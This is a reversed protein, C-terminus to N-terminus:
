CTLYNVYPVCIMCWLISIVDYGLVEGRLNVAGTRSPTRTLPTTTVVPSLPSTLTRSPSAPTPNVPLDFADMLNRAEESSARPRLQNAHRKWISGEVLVDYLTQGHRRLIRGPSWKSQGARFDRAFVLDNPEFKRPKAGHRRNFQEEMTIDPRAEPAHSPKLLDLTSRLRRGIFNETPSRGDPSATCPTNRYTFLFIHLADVTPGNNKMKGISRKSTDVFREAQRITPPIPAVPHARNRQKIIQPLGFQAFLHRVERLTAISTTSTMPTVDPWKFFADVVVLYSIGDISGAFDIHIRSWPADPRSWSCLTNKVPSKAAEQCAACNRVPKELDDNIKTWFVYSRALAKMRNMGPHGEHLMRMVIPQLSPPIIIRSGFVLCGQQTSLDNRLHAYSAVAPSPKKSWNNHAVHDLVQRLCDGEATAHAVDKATVPLRSVNDHFIANVDRAIKAIIVDEKPPSQASILRSLADAQGFSTTSQYRHSIVAGIGYDSADAAIVIPLNPNYHTLLMDSALVEKVREFASDCESNWNFPSEKIVDDLYAAVGNLGSIMSDIIQQFIGPASKVGFPLRNYRYLGRHTNITLLEKSDDDVEVQLYADAFDIQSFVTGGNLKTFVDEATPLPHRHLQLADNLGTSFDACLRISGNAKRAVVIPAAWQSHDVASIVDQAVLRDIEADLLPVSAYPVPRKKIFVPYADPKLYLTAKARTCCWTEAQLCGRLPAEAQRYDPRPNRRLQADAGEPRQIEELCSILTSVETSRCHYVTPEKSSTLPGRYVRSGLQMWTPRSIINVDAGTDLQLRTPYGIIHVELYKQVDGSRGIARQYWTRPSSQKTRRRPATRSEQAASTANRNQPCDKKWHQQKCIPCPSPPLRPKTPPSFRHKKRKQVTRIEPANAAEVIRSDDKVSKWAHYEKVLDDVSIKEGEDLKRLFRVRYDALEPAQFAFVLALCELTEQRIDKFNAELARAKLLNVFNDIDENPSFNIRFCEFRRRFLSKKTGFLTKLTLLRTKMAEDMGQCDVEFVDEHRKFWLNFCDDQEADYSFKEIRRSVRDFTTEQPAVTPTAMRQLLDVLLKQQSAMVQLLDKIPADEPGAIAAHDKFDHDQDGTTTDKPLRSTSSYKNSAM